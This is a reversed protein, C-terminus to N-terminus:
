GRPAAGVKEDADLLRGCVGELVRARADDSPMRGVLKTAVQVM